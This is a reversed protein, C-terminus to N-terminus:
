RRREWLAYAAGYAAGGLHAANAIGSSGGMTGSLDMLVYLGVLWRIEMPIIGYFLVQRRPFHFAYLVLLGMVSGSAGVTPLPDAHFFAGAVFALGAVMGSLLYFRLFRGGGYMSELERGFWWLFLMNFVLHWLGGHCFTYTLLQWVRGSLVAGPWLALHLSSEPVWQQILFVAITLGILVQTVSWSNGWGGGGSRYNERIYDRDYISM